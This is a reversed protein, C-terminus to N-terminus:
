VTISLDTIMKWTTRHYRTPVAVLIKVSGDPGLLAALIQIRNSAHLSPQQGAPRPNHVRTSSHLLTPPRFTSQKDAPPKVCILRRHRLMGARLGVRVMTRVTFSYVAREGVAWFSGPCAVKIVHDDVMGGDTVWPRRSCLKSASNSYKCVVAHLCLAIIEICPYTVCLSYM